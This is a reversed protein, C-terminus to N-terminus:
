QDGFASYNSEETEMNECCSNGSNLIGRWGWRAQRDLKHDNVNLDFRKISFVKMIVLSNM